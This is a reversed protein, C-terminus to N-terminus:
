GFLTNCADISDCTVPPRAPCAIYQLLMRHMCSNLAISSTCEGTVVCVDVKIAVQVNELQELQYEEDSIMAAATDVLGADVSAGASPLHLSESVPIHNLDDALATTSGAPMSVVDSMSVEETIVRDCHRVAHLEGHDVSPEQDEMADVDVLRSVPQLTLDFLM